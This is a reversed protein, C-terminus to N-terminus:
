IIALPCWCSTALFVVGFVSVGGINIVGPDRYSNKIMERIKYSVTGGKEQSGFCGRGKKQVTAYGVAKRASSFGLTTVLGAGNPLPALCLISNTGKETHMCVLFILKIWYAEM